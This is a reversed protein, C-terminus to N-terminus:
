SSSKGYRSDRMKRLIYTGNRGKVRRFLKLRLKEAKAVNNKKNLEKQIFNRILESWNEKTYKMKRKTMKDIKVLIADEYSMNDCTYVM